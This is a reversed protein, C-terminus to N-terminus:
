ARVCQFELEAILGRPMERLWHDHLRKLSLEPDRQFKDPLVLRQRLTLCAPFKVWYVNDENPVSRVISARGEIYPRMLLGWGFITVSQGARRLPIRTLGIIAARVDNPIRELTM